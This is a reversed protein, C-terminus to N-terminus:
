AKAAFHKKDIVRPELHPRIWDAFASEEIWSTGFHRCSVVHCEIRTRSLAVLLKCVEDDSIAKPDRPFFGNNFGVIFVYSASLGKSGVLSTFQITPADDDLEAEEGEPESPDDDDAIALSKKIEALDMGVAGSLQKEQEDTLSEDDRLRRVLEAIELQTERYDDPLESVFDDGAELAERVLTDRGELEFCLTIIRWGLRSNADVALRRYGDLPTMLSAPGKKMQAQPFREKVVEYVAPMFPRDGIVLVTPYGGEKSERIVEVLITEICDAVYRGPYPAKKSQVSCQAYIIKPHEESETQKDPLYCAFPKDLRGELNGNDKAAAIVDNIAEVVVATCRSCYPLEFNDYDADAHLERIYRSSANKFEYLAQDDDGAILVKSKAALLALFRTELLSFDQYEDVVILPYSPIAEENETFHTLVRHVLDTHSVANYYNGIALADTIVRDSDDLNHLCQEVDIPKMGKRGLLELDAAMVEILAPYYDWGEELGAVPHRHMQHKCFGHFTFVDAVDSLADSLDAVLNRIFTLALGKEANGSDTIAKSLARKFTYTKGSGPGAVILRKESDSNVIADSAAARAREIAELDREDVEMSCRNYRVTRARLAVRGSLDGPSAKTAPSRPNRRVYERRHRYQQPRDRRKRAASPETAREQKSCSEDQEESTGTGGAGTARRDAEDGHRSLSAQHHNCKRVASRKRADAYGTPRASDGGGHVSPVHEDYAGTNPGHRFDVADVGTDKADEAAESTGDGDREVVLRFPDM